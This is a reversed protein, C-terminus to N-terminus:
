KKKKLDGNRNISSKSKGTWPCIIKFNFTLPLNANRKIWWKWKWTRLNFDIKNTNLPLAIAMALTLASAFSFVTWLYFSNFKSAQMLFNFKMIIFICAPVGNVGGCLSVKSCLKSFFWGDLTIDNSFRWLGIPIPLFSKM